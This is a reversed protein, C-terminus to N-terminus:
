KFRPGTVWGVLSYRVGKTVPTVEHLTYSPFMVAVGQERKVYDAEKNHYLVLDGGEFSSEDSLLISFSMKRQGETLFDVMDIHKDYFQGEDYVAFQLAEIMSLDFNFFTNNVEDVCDVCRRFIWENDETPIWAIQSNRYESDVTLTAGEESQVLGNKPKLSLGLEIIKECDEKTFAPVWAWPYNPVGKLYWSFHKLKTTM